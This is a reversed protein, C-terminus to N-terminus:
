SVAKSFSLGLIIIKYDPKTQNIALQRFPKTPETLKTPKKNKKEGLQRHSTGSAASLVLRHDSFDSIMWFIGCGLLSGHLFSAHSM